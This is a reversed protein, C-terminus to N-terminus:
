VPKWPILADLFGSASATIDDRRTKDIRALNGYIVSM